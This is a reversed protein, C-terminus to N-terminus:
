HNAFGSAGRAPPGGVPLARVGGVHRGGPCGGAGGGKSDGQRRGGRHPEIIPVQAAATAAPAGSRFSPLDM